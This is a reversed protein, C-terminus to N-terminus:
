IIDLKELKKLIIKSMKTNNNVEIFAVDWTIPKDDLILIIEKRVGLPLGAYIKIFKEKEGIMFVM